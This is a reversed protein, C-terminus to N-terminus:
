TRWKLRNHTDLHESVALARNYVFLDQITGDFPDSAKDDYIGIKVTRSATVPNTHSGSTNTADAGDLYIKVSTGARSVGITYWTATTITDAVTYSYQAVATQSTALAIFNTADSYLVYGDTNLLGRVFLYQHIDKVDFKLRMIISFDGAVFNMMSESALEIYDPTGSTFNRGNPLWINTAGTVTVTTKYADVSKYASDKLAWLPLYLVLGETSFGYPDLGNHRTRKHGGVGHYFDRKLNPPVFHGINPM